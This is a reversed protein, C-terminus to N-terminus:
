IAMGIIGSKQRGADKGLHGKQRRVGVLDENPISSIGNQPGQMLYLSLFNWRFGEAHAVSLEAQFCGQQSSIIPDPRDRFAVSARSRVTPGNPYTYAIRGTSVKGIRDFIHFLGRWAHTLGVKALYDGKQLGGMLNTGGGCLAGIGMQAERDIRVLRGGKDEDRPFAMSVNQHTHFASCRPPSRSRRKLLRFHAITGAAGGDRVNRNGWEYAAPEKSLSLHM